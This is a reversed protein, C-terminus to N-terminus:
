KMSGSPPEFLREPNNYVKVAGSDRDAPLGTIPSVYTEKLEDVCEGMIDPTGFALDAPKLRARYWPAKAIANATDVWLPLAGTSGYISVHRSHMPRNDDYGVYAAIVYGEDLCLDGNGEAPAPIYGVFSSNTFRNATGTKGFVPLIVPSGGSGELTTSVANKAKKGTGEAMVNRLIETALCSVRRSLVQEERPKFEWIVEGNRDEIKTVIPIMGLEELGDITKIRGTMITHYALCTELLSIANPGLPFSLVAELDSRIGMLRSLYVAYRMNVLTRFDRTHPILGRDDQGGKSSLAEELMDLLKSPILGEIMCGGIDARDRNEKLWLYSVPILDKFDEPLRGSRFYYLQAEANRDITRFLGSVDSDEDAKEQARLLAEKMADNSSRLSDFGLKVGLKSEEEPPMVDELTLERLKGIAGTFGQFIADPIIQEKARELLVERSTGPRFVIGYRDRLRVRYAELSEGDQRALGAARAAEYFETPTLHDTLHYLLWVTALNESKAGAWAMSVVESQPDHDPKPVYSTTQFRYLNARNELRDLIGWKLQLAAAYLLTKFISGVQRKAHVARNFHRNQFGGVMARVMGKQMAVVAGDLSPAATLLYAPSPPEAATKELVLQDGTKFQELFADMRKTDLTVGPGYRWLCWASAAPLLSERTLTAEGGQWAVKIFGSLGQREVETVTAILYNSTETTIKNIDLTTNNNGDPPIGKLGNLSIDLLPLHKRLSALAAAQIEKNVSTYIRIGSTAINEIGKEALVDKFYDSELQERVYDLIVNLSYTIRGEKFPVELDKARKYEQETIFNYEMMNNLVYDKRQKALRRAESKERETSKIFPNYRNPAKLSGAIFCAEVLDLDKPEKDFFYLSAVGLGKGFGTVFFQNVYMELIEEKSYMAELVMAQLFERFKSKFSRAERSFINKATQQTITSGGQVVRGARLNVWAARLLGKIDIGRHLLFDKDEAALLAKIFVKPIEDYRLSRRHVQQFFVGIPTRGDDYYVPSESGTIKEISERKLAERTERYVGYITHFALAGAALFLILLLLATVKLIKSRM